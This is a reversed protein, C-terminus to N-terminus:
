RQRIISRLFKEAPLRRVRYGGRRHLLVISIEDAWIVTKWDELTWHRRAPCWNLREKRMKLTLGPKRTPKTKQLGAKRLIRWVSIASISIGENSLEGAIDAYTKERGYRDLRVKALSREITEEIQVKPRGSRAADRVYDDRVILPIQNPDFGREIARAYIRNISSISLGTLFAIERTTKGSQAKLAVVSARMAIDPNSPM